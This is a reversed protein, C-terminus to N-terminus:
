NFISAYNDGTIYKNELVNGSDSGVGVYCAIRGLIILIINPWVNSKDRYLSQILEIDTNSPTPVDCGHTHWEGLYNITGSSETWRKNIIKQAAKKNRIFSNPGRKDWFSPCTAETIIYRNESPIYNGLLIGGAEYKGPYQIYRRLTTAVDPFFDVIANNFQLEM